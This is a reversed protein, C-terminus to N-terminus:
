RIEKFKQGVLVSASTTTSRVAAITIIGTNSDRRHWVITRGLELVAGGVANKSTTVYDGDVIHGGSFATASVDYELASYDTDVDSWSAGTLATGSIVVLRISNNTQVTIGQPIIVTKNPILKFTSKARYSLLPVLTTSITKETTGRDIYTSYGPMEFLPKGGESKVTGCIARMEASANKAIKYRFGVANLEDGYGLEMYTYTADNYIRWYMSNTPNQWYGTNRVNDNHISHIHVTVGSRNFGYRITGVKLSQFDIVFIHSKTWDFSEGQNDWQSETYVEETTSGTVTSRLFLECNGGGIAADDLTGTIDIVQGNGPTYPIQHSAQEASDGTTTGGNALTLDGQTANHTITGAGSEISDCIDPQTDYIFEVDFRNGDESTKLIGFASLASQPFTIATESKSSEGLYTRMFDRVNEGTAKIGDISSEGIEYKDFAGQTDSLGNIDYPQIYGAIIEIDSFYFDKRPKEFIIKGTDTDTIILSNGSITFDYKM